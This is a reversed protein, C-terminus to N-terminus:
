KLRKLLSSLKLLMSYVDTIFKMKKTFIRYDGKKSAYYWYESSKERLFVRYKYILKRSGSISNRSIEVRKKPAWQKNKKKLYLRYSLGSRRHRFGGGQANRMEDESLRDLSLENKTLGDCLIKDIKENRTIIVSNGKYDKTYTKLWADGVTLDATESFIDDCYDCAEYKFYGLGWNTGMTEKAVLINKQGSNEEVSIGYNDAPRDIIKYRFDIYKLKLPDIGGQWAVLESFAKSKLHGCVLGICFKIRSNIIEDIQMYKRISKVFCPLGVFVYRMDNQKVYKIVDSMEIPYYRSKAGKVIEEETKSISYKFLTGETGTPKVHIVADVLKRNILQILTYTIIGGSTTKMRINEDDFHGAYLGQYYGIVEGIKGKSQDFIINSMEDENLGMNSFPCVATANDITDSNSSDKILAEYYKYKNEVIEIDNSISACSGCGICYGGKVIKELESM